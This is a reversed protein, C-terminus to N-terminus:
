WGTAVWHVLEQLPGDLEAAHTIEAVLDLSIQSTAYCFRPLVPFLSGSTTEEVM